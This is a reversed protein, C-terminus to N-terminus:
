ISAKLSSEQMKTPGLQDCLERLAKKSGPTNELYSHYVRVMNNRNSEHYGELDDLQMRYLDDRTREYDKKMQGQAQTTNSFTSLAAFLGSRRCMM